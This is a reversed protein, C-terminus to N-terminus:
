IDIEDLSDFQNLEGKKYNRQEFGADKQPKFTAYKGSIVKDYNDIIFSLNASKLFNSKEIEEFLKDKDGFFNEVYVDQGINPFRQSLSTAFGDNDRENDNDNENDNDYEAQKPQKPNNLYGSPNNPNNPNNETTKPQKRANQNGVPAGGKLGNLRNKECKKEYKELNVDLDQKIFNFAIKLGGTFDPEERKIEYHFLARFLKGFQEDTLDELSDLYSHYIVFSNKM